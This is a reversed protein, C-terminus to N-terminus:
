VYDTRRYVEFNPAVERIHKLSITQTIADGCIVTEGFVVPMYIDYTKDPEEVWVVDGTQVRNVPRRKYGLERFWKDIELTKAVRYAGKWDSYSGRLSELNHPDDWGPNNLKVFDLLLMHCDNIGWKFPQNVM